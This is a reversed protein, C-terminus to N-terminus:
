RSSLLELHESAEWSQEWAQWQQEWAEPWRESDQQWWVWAQRWQEWATVGKTNCNYKRSWEHDSLSVQDPIVFQWGSKWLPDLKLIQEGIPWIEMVQGEYWSIWLSLWAFQLYSTHIIKPDSITSVYGNQITV